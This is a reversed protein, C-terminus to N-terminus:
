EHHTHKEYENRVSELQQVINEITKHAYGDAIIDRLVALQATIRIYEKNTM